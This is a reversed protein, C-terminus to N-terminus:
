SATYVSGKLRRVQAKTATHFSYERGTWESEVYRRLDPGHQAKVIVSSGDDYFTVLYYKMPM